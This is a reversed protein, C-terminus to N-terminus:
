KSVSRPSRLIPVACTTAVSAYTTWQVLHRMVSVSLCSTYASLLQACRAYTVIPEAYMDFENLTIVRILETNNICFVLTYKVGTHANYIRDRKRVIVSVCDCGCECSM